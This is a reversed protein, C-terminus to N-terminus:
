GGQQKKNWYAWAEEQSNKISMLDVTTVGGKIRVLAFWRGWYDRGIREIERVRVIQGFRVCYRRM